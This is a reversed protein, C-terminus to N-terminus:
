KYLKYEANFGSEPSFNFKTMDIKSYLGSAILTNITESLVKTSPSFLTLTSGGPQFGAASLNAGEPLSSLLTSALEIEDTSSEAGLILKTKDLRDKVLILRAETKELSKINSKLESIRGQSIKFERSYFFYLGSIGISAVIFIIFGVIVIQRFVGSTKIISQKPVLDKPILNIQEM